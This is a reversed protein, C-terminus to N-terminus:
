NPLTVVELPLLTDLFLNGELDQFALQFPQRPQVAQNQVEQGILYLAWGLWDESVVKGIPRVTKKKGSISSYLILM